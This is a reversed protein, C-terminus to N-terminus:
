IGFHKKFPPLYKRSIYDEMGNKLTLEMTGNFSAEVHSIQRLNVLASKYIRIFQDGLHEELEYLPRNLIYRNKRKDYCVVERGETRTLALNEPELFHIKGDRTGFLVFSEAGEKELISVADAIAPTMKSIHLVAYPESCDASIQCEVRMLIGGKRYSKVTEPYYSKFEKGTYHIM